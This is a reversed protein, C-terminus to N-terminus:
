KRRGAQWALLVRSAHDGAAGLLDAGLRVSIAALVGDPVLDTFYHTCPPPSPPITDGKGKKFPEANEGSKTSTGKDEEMEDVM